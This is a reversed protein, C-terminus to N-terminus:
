PSFLLAACASSAFYLLSYKIIRNFNAEKLPIQLIYCAILKSLKYLYHNNHTHVRTRACVCVYLKSKEGSSAHTTCQGLYLTSDLDLGELGSKPVPVGTIKNFNYKKFFRTLHWIVPQIFGSSNITNKCSTQMFSFPPSLYFSGKPSFRSLSNLVWCIKSWILFFSKQAEIYTLFINTKCHNKLLICSWYCIAVPLVKKHM